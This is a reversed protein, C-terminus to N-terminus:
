SASGVVGSSVLAAIEGDALGLERLVEASHEGLRPPPRDHALRERDVRLPSAVAEVGDIDQLMGGARTQPHAGVQVLDQVPAVPIGDLAALWHSSSETALRARIPPLLEDRHALRDPNSGYRPDDALEHLGIRECLLRFLRDNAAAIMLEGDATAFVEYPAILPFATGHRAPAVGSQLAGALQYGVLSLATDFLAVSVDRGRGTTARELL